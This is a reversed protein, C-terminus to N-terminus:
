KREEVHELSDPLTEVFSRILDRVRRFVSLIGEETGTEAAPDEFGVHRLKTNSPFVPCAERGDGCLTVVHDFQQDLLERVRKSRQGSMDVGAEKMVRIARPNIGKPEIGASFADIQKSKLHRTWGEAVQSRCSNGTCLFLIRLKKKPYQM